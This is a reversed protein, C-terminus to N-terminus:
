DNAAFLTHLKEMYAEKGKVFSMAHGAGEVLLLDKESNCHEYAEKTMECPVFKDDAGHVFLIPLTTKKLADLSSCDDLSFGKRWKCYFNMMDMCPHEPNHFKEEGVTKIIAYPSTFGCDAIIGKVEAPFADASAMLVTTAGMSVGYLYIPISADINEQYWTVWPLVDKREMIGFTMIEGDSRGQAREEILLLNCDMEHLYPACAAFDVDWAGHWGHFAIVTRKANECPIYHGYLKLGEPNTMVRIDRDNEHLWEQGAKADGKLEYGGTQMLKVIPERDFALSTFIKLSAGLATVIGGSVAASVVIAKKLNM